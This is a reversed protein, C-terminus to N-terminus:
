SPNGRVPITVYFCSGSKLKSTVGIKGGLAEVIRRCIALGLGTGQAVRAPRVELQSFPKFLKAIDDGAIGIGTDRVEIRVEEGRKQCILRIEGHDTFKLANTILNNLVQQLRRESSYILGAGPEVDLTFKLGQATAEPRFSDATQQLLEPLDVPEIDIHLEGAEIKSIDLVDNVLSLLHQGALKIITLQKTQDESLPGALHQLLIGTFGIISNLPTRFEHSMTALFASKVRDAAEARNMATELEGTRQKVRQELKLKSDHLATMALRLDSQQQLHEMAFSIDLAMENLLDIEAQQFVDAEGAYVNLLGIIQGAKRLPFVASSRIGFRAAKELWPQMAPDQNLDNCIYREGNRFAHGSPGRGEPLDPRTSVQIGDLYDRAPGYSAAVSIHDGDPKGIWALVFGATDVAIECVRRYLSDADTVRVIAENTKSLAAYFRNLRQIQLEDQKRETVDIHCGLMRVPEGAEDYLLNAQTFIWRYSGDRHRFRFETEYHDRPDALFARLKQLMPELDDPHVRQQWEDFRNSIEDERYGIQRKWEPSYYVRNDKLNWDWLGVDATEVALRLRAESERLAEEAQKRETVDVLTTVHHLEGALQMPRSSFLLHIPRGSRSRTLLEANRLGGSKLQAEILQRREDGTLIGLETSTHGIVEDRGFEFLDLFAQNVDIFRGDAIRTITIAAPSSHFASAFREESERLAVEARKRETIDRSVTAWGVATGSADRVSFLYYFMWIPEGTQFHRLRIEVDGQGERLVRPFFEEAIFRQDEPFFYDQVKVRCAADMDPLGVMRMGAANVYHPKMDLDCMGIFESSSDALMVFKQREAEARKRETIDTTSVFALGEGSASRIRWGSYSLIKEWGQDLRHLRAKWDHLVEGRLVRGMPWDEVPVPTEENLPRIEFRNAFETFHRQCDEMSAHGFMALAAPNMYTVRGQDDAMTLGEGLNEMVATLRDSNEKAAAEAQKRAAIDIGVGVLHPKGEIKTRLGTFYYPTRTGDRAVFDAEVDALGTEFVEAIREALLEKDPGAFFDLPSMRAIEAATYGLVREFNKNWRLFRFDQDYCYVVGPLSNLIAESFDRERLVTEDVQKRETIDSAIGLIQSVRGDGDRAYPTERSLLWHWDGAKDRVRYEITRIEGDAADRQAEHNASIRPLDDPHFLRLVESGMAQTEEPSFGYATLWHRNIYVNRQQLLDYIYVTGPETNVIRELLNSKERLSSELSIRQSIDRVSSLICETGQFIMPNAFVEVPFEGGDKCRHRWEFRDGSKLATHLHPQVQGKFGPAALDAANMSTLEKLSYGYRDVATRNAHRIRGDPGLIFVADPNADFIARADSGDITPQQTESDSIVTDM